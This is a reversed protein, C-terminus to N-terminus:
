LEVNSVLGHAKPGHSGLLRVKQELSGDEHALYAYCSLGCVSKLLESGQELLKLTLKQADPPPPFLSYSGM